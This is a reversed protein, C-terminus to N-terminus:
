ITFFNEPETIRKRMYRISAWKTLVWLSSIGMVFWAFKGITPLPAPRCKKRGTAANFDPCIITKASIARNSNGACAASTKKFPLSAGFVEDTVPEALQLLLWRGPAPLVWRAVLALWSEGPHACRADLFRRQAPRFKIVSYRFPRCKSLNGWGLGLCFYVNM